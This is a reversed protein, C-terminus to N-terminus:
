ARGLVDRALGLAFRDAPELADLGPTNRLVPEMMAAKAACGEPTRAPTDTIRHLLDWWEGTVANFQEDSISEERALSLQRQHTEQFAACLSLLEADDDPGAGAGALLDTLVSFAAMEERELENAVSAVAAHAAKAKALLGARTRPQLETLRGLAAYYRGLIEGYDHDGTTRDLVILERDAALFRECEALLEADPHPEPPSITLVHTAQEM